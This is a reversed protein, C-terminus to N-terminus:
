INTSNKSSYIGCATFSDCGNGQMYVASNVLSPVYGREHMWMGQVTYSSGTDGPAWSDRELGLVLALLLLTVSRRAVKWWSSGELGWAKPLAERSCCRACCVSGLSLEQQQLAGPVSLGHSSCARWVGWCWRGLYCQSQTPMLEAKSAPFPKSPHHPSASQNHGKTITLRVRGHLQKRCLYM